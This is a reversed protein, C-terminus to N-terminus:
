LEYKEKLPRNLKREADVPEQFLKWTKYILSRRFLRPSKYVLKIEEAENATEDAIENQVQKVPSEEIVYSAEVIIEESVEKEM